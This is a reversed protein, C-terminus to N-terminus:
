AHYAPPPRDPLDREQIRGQHVDYLTGSHPDYYQRPRDDNDKFVPVWATGWLPYQGQRRRHRATLIRKKKVM